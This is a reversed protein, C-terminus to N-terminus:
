LFLQPGRRLGPGPDHPSLEIINITGNRPTGKPTINTWNKGGDRSIHVLGDCTGAWLLGPTQPSEEFSLINSYVEVGTNEMTIPSGAYDQKDKENRSLDPSIIEWSQGQNPSKHVFQSCHYLINPDHPSLRIPANWNFRYRMDKPAQGIEM